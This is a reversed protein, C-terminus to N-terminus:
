PPQRGVVDPLGRRVIAGPDRPRMAVGPVFAAARGVFWVDRGRCLVVGLTHPESAPRMGFPGETGVYRPPPSTLAVSPGPCKRPADPLPPLGRLDNVRQRPHQPEPHERVRAVILISIFAVCPSGSIRLSESNLRTTPRSGSIPPSRQEWGVMLCNSVAGDRTSTPCGVAAKTSRTRRGREGGRRRGTIGSMPSVQSLPVRARRRGGGAARNATHRGACTRLAPGRAFQGNGASTRRGSQRLNRGSRGQGARPVVFFAADGWHQPRAFVPPEALMRPRTPSARGGRRRSRSPVPHLSRSAFGFIGRSSPRM